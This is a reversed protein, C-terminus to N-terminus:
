TSVQAWREPPPPPLAPSSTSSGSLTTPPLTDASLGVALGPSLTVSVTVALSTVDKVGDNSLDNWGGFQYNNYNYLMLKNEINNENDPEGILWNTYTFDEGTVWAFDSNENLKYGGLWTGNKKSKKILDNITNQEEQSTITVLHGGLNECFERSEEWSIGSDFLTYFHNNFIVYNDNDPEASVPMVFLLVTVLMVLLTFGFTKKM